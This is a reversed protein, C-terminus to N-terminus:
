AGRIKGNVAKVDENSHQNKKHEARGNPDVFVEKGKLNMQGDLGDDHLFGNSRIDLKGFGGNRQEVLFSSFYDEMARCEEPWISMGVWLDPRVAVVAGRAHNIGYWYHADQDPARDDYVVTAATEKLFMLDADALLAASEDPLAKLVLVVNFMQKGGYRAVFGKPGLAQQSFTAVRDRVPGQLDSGFILLHFRSAGVMTDYLYGTKSQEFCVRPSPARAGNIISIPRPIKNNNDDHMPPCVTSSTRPVDVGLLFNANKEFFAGCWALDGERTGDLPPMDEMYTEPEDGQGKLPALPINTGCIFRLYAGSTRIVRNAFLRRETDYSPLIAHPNALNRACLGLKWSLNSADFISSNLGFAGLVSHVHAADGGLHVRFDPSSFSRAVRESIKWVAFWSLSSAFKVTYPAFVRNTQELVEEATISHIDVRGGAERHDEVLEKVREAGFTTIYPYDSEFKCDMIGWHIDTTTGDFPIQLQKRISSAAGEAGVLYKAKVTRLRGSKTHKITALVPHSCERESRIEFSDIVTCREVLARHRMLDRVYIKEIQGQSIVHLGRYRSDSLFTPGYLMKTGDKFMATHNLLPGEEAIESVLGWNELYELSRPQIADARGALLPTEAKDIIRFSVGQRALSLAVELGFPGAIKAFVRLVSEVGCILVDVEDSPDWWDPAGHPSETGNYITPWSRLANLGLSNHVTSTLPEKVPPIIYHAREGKESTYFEKNNWTPKESPMVFGTKWTQAPVTTAM